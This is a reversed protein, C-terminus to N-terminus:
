PFTVKVNKDSYKIVKSAFHYFMQQIVTELANKSNEKSIRSKKRLNTSDIGLSHTM